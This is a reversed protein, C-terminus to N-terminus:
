LAKSAYPIPILHNYCQNLNSDSTVKREHTVNTDNDRTVKIISNYTKKLNIYCIVKTYSERTVKTYNDRTANM